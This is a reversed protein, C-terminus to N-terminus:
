ERCGSVEDARSIWVHTEHSFPHKHGCWFQEWHVKLQEHDKICCFSFVLAFSIYGIDSM